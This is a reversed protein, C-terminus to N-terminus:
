DMPKCLVLCSQAVSCSSIQESKSFDNALTHGTLDSFSFTKSKM